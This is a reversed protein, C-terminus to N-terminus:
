PANLPAFRHLELSSVTEDRMGKLGFVGATWNLMRPIWEIVIGM